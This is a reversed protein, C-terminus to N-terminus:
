AKRSAVEFPVIKLIRHFLNERKQVNVNLYVKIFALLWINLAGEIFHIKFINKIRAEILATFNTDIFAQYRIILM